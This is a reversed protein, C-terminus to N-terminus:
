LDSLMKCNTNLHIHISDTHISKVSLANFGRYHKHFQFLKETIATAPMKGLQLHCLPYNMLSFLSAMNTYVPLLRQNCMCDDM